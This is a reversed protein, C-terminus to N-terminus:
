LRKLFLEFFYLVVMFHVRIALLSTLKHKRTVTWVRHSIGQEGLALLM